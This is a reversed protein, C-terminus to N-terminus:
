HTKIMREPKPFHFRFGRVQKENGYDALIEVRSTYEPPDKLVWVIDGDSSTEKTLVIPYDVRIMFKDHLIYGSESLPFPNSLVFFTLEKLMGDTGDANPYCVATVGGWGDITIDRKLFALAKDDRHNDTLKAYTSIFVRRLTRYNPLKQLAYMPLEPIRFEEPRVKKVKGEALGDVYKLDAPSLRDRSIAITMGNDHKFYVRGAEERLFTGAATNGNISTWTHVEAAAEGIFGGILGALVWAFAKM